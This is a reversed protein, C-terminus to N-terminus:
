SERQTRTWSPRAGPSARGRLSRQPSIGDVVEGDVEMLHTVQRLFVGGGLLRLARLSGSVRGVDHAAILDSIPWFLAVIVAVAVVALAVAALLRRPTSWTPWSSM